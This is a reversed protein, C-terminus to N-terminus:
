PFAYSFPGVATYQGSHDMSIGERVRFAKSCGLDAQKVIIGEPLVVGPHEKAHLQRREFAGTQCRAASWHREQHLAPAFSGEAREPEAEFM